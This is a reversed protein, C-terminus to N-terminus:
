GDRDDYGYDHDDRDERDDDDDDDDDDDGDDNDDDDDDDDYNDVFRFSSNELVSFHFVNKSLIAVKQRNFM